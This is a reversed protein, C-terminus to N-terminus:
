QPYRDWARYDAVIDRWRQAPVSGSVIERRSQVCCAERVIVAANEAADALGPSHRGYTEILFRQFQVESCLLGAQQAPSMQHWSKPTRPAPPKPVERAPEEVTTTPLPEENDGIAVLAVVFRQGMPAQTLMAPMSDATVKFRVVWDGDQHQVMGVKRAEMNVACARAVDAISPRENM